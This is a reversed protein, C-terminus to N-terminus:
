GARANSSQASRAPDPVCGSQFRGAHCDATASKATPEGSDDRRRPRCAATVDTDSPAECKGDFLRAKTLASPRDVSSQVAGETPGNSRVLPPGICDSGFVWSISGLSTLIVGSVSGGPRM